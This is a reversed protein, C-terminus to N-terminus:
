HLPVSWLRPTLTLLVDGTGTALVLPEPERGVVAQVLLLRAFLDRADLDHSAAFEALPMSGLSEGSMSWAYVHPETSV